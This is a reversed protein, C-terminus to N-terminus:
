RDPEDWAGAFGHLRKDLQNLLAHIYYLAERVRSVKLNTSTSFESNLMQITFTSFSIFEKAHAQM